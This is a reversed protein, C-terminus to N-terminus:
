LPRDIWPVIILDEETPADCTQQMSSVPHMGNQRVKMLQRSWPATCSVLLGM